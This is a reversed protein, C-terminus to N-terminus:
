IIDLHPKDSKFGAWGDSKIGARSTIYTWGLGASTIYTLILPAINHSVASQGAQNIM